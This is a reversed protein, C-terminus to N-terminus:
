EFLDKMEEAALSYYERLSLPVKHVKRPTSIFLTHHKRNIDKDFSMKFSCLVTDFGDIRMPLTASKYPEISYGTIEGKKLYNVPKPNPIEPVEYRLENFHSGNLIYENLYADDITIPHLSLNSIKVSIIAFYKSDFNDINFDKASCYYSNPQKVFEMGPLIYKFTIVHIIISIVSIVFGLISITNM